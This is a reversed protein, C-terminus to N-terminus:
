ALTRLNAQVRLGYANKIEREVNKSAGQTFRNNEIFYKMEIFM